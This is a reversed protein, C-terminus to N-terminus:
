TRTKASIKTNHMYMMTTKKNKKELLLRCVLHLRSQREYTHEEARAGQQRREGGADVGLGVALQDDGADGSRVALRRDGREDSRFLTTFPFLTFRPPRRIM